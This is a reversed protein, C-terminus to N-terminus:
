NPLRKLTLDFPHAGSGFRSGSIELRNSFLKGEVWNEYAGDNKVAEDNKNDHIIKFFVNAGSKKIDKIKYVDGNESNEAWGIFVDPNTKKFHFIVTGDRSWIGALALDAAFSYHSGLLMVLSLLLKTFRHIQKDKM